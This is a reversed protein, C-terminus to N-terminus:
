NLNATKNKSGKINCFLKLFEGKGNLNETSLINYYESKWEIWNAATVSSNYRIIFEHTVTGIVDVGDFIEKGSTTKVMAWPYIAGSLEESFGTGTSSPTIGRDYITIRSDLSGICVKDAKQKIRRNCSM